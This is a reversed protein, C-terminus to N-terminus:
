KMIEKAERVRALRAEDVKELEGHGGKARESEKLEMAVKTKKIGATTSDEVRQLEGKDKVKM